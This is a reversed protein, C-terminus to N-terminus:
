CGSGQCAAAYNAESAGDRPTRAVLSLSHPRTAHSRAKPWWLGGAWRGSKFKVLPVEAYFRTAGMSLLECGQQVTLFREATM